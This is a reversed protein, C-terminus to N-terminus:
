FPLSAYAELRARGVQEEAELLIFTWSEPNLKLMISSDHVHSMRRESGDFRVLHKRLVCAARPRTTSFKKLPTIVGRLGAFKVPGDRNM